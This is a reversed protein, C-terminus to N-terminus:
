GEKRIKKYIREKRTLYAFFLYELTRGSQHAHSYPPIEEKKGPCPLSQKKQQDHETQKLSRGSEKENDAITGNKMVGHYRIDRGDNMEFDNHIWNYPDVYKIKIGSSYDTYHRVVGVGLDFLDEDVKDKITEFKEIKLVNEIALEQAIEIKPKYEIKKIALEEPSNPVKEPTLNVGISKGIIDSLEKTYFNNALKKFYEKKKDVATIDIAEARPKFLSEDISNTIIGKFVPMIKLPKYDIKHTKVESGATGNTDKKDGEITKKYQLTSQEGRSYARMLDIWARRASLNGNFWHNDIAEAVKEGYENTEKEKNSVMDDPFNTFLNAM